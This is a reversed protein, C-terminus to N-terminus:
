AAATDLLLGALMRRHHGADGFWPQLWLARRLYLQADCDWTFGFGGHFQVARDGAQVAADGAEAKAMRLAIEADRGDALLTAAHYVHSRVRELQCLIDACGHKLAQYSGIKRGFANRTNLYDVTVALAGAIGGAAEAAALLWAAQRIAPLARAAADGTILRDAPVTLGDLTLGFSRRTEDIVTERQLRGAVDARTLLALAPAGNLQVSALVLDAVAADAVLTKRGSLTATGGALRAQSQLAALDWDGDDEFLAVSGVAGTALRPLWDAQQATSGGALLGQIALQTAVFPTHFLHRGLPEALVACAAIGLGSGGHTEPVAIGLWGMDVMAQWHAPDFGTSDDHPNGFRARVASSPSQDRCFSTAAELLMAQEDSFTIRANLTASM